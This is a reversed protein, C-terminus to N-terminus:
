FPTYMGYGRPTPPSPRWKWSFNFIGFNYNDFSTLLFLKPLLFYDILLPSTFMHNFLLFPLYNLKLTIINLVLVYNSIPQNSLKTNSADVPLETFPSVPSHSFFIRSPPLFTMDLTILKAKSSDTPILRKLTEWLHRNHETCGMKFSSNLIEFNSPPPPPPPHM